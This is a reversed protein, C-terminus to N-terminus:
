SNAIVGVIKATKQLSSTFYPVIQLLIDSKEQLIDRKEKSFSRM